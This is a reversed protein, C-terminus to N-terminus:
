SDADAAATLETVVREVLALEATSCRALIEDLHARQPEFFAEAEAHVAEASHLTVLRRDAHGRQRTIHGAAELRNLLLSTAGSSLGIREGLRAPTLPRGRQEGRLIEVVAASDTLHMKMHRAFRRGRDSQSAGFAMLSVLVRARQAAGGGAAEM